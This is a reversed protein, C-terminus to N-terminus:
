FLKKLTIEPNLEKRFLEYGNRAIKEKLEPNNKLEMIKEALDAPDGLETLLCNERETLLQLVAPTRATILARGCAISEFVKLPVVRMIKPSTGFSGLCVDSRNMYDGLKRYPVPEIFNVNTLNWEKALRLAEPLARGRGILNFIIKEDKLLKAAGIIVNELGQVPIYSGHFHVVFEGGRPHLEPIPYLLDDDSGVYMTMFKNERSKLNFEEIFFEQHFKTHVIILDALRCSSWDLFHIFKARLTNPGVEQRDLILSDYFSFLADFIIKKRNLRALLWALPAISQGQFAIFMIDYDNKIKKHM